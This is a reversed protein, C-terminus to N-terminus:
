TCGRTCISDKWGISAVFGCQVLPTWFGKEPNSCFFAHSTWNGFLKGLTEENTCWEMDDVYITSANFYTSVVIICTLHADGNKKYINKLPFHTIKLTLRFSKM